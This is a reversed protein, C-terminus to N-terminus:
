ELVLNLNLYEEETPEFESLDENSDSLLISSVEASLSELLGSIDVLEQVSRTAPVKLSSCRVASSTQCVLNEVSNTFTHQRGM